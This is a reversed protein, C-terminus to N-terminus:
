GLANIGVLVLGWAAAAGGLAIALRVAGPWIRPRGTLVLASGAPAQEGAEPYGKLRTASVVSAPIPEDFACGYLQGNRWIVRVGTAGRDPLDVMARSGTALEADTEFALGGVAISRICVDFDAEADAATAPLRLAYRPAGRRNDAQKGGTAKHKQM